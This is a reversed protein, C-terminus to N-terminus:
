TEMPTPVGQQRESSVAGNVRFLDNPRFAGHWAFVAMAISLILERVETPANSMTDPNLKFAPAYYKGYVYAGVFLWVYGMPAVPFAFRRILGRGFSTLALLPLLLGTTLMMISLYRYKGGMFSDVIAINHLNLEHQKNVGMLYEPTQVQFIRQGWSIEEGCFMFMLLAWSGIFFYIWASGRARLFESRWAAVVFGLSAVAYLIASGSEIPGDEISHKSLSVPDVEAWIAFGGLVFLALILGLRFDASRTM